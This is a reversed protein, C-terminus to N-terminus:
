RRLGRSLFLSETGVRGPLWPRVLSAQGAQLHSCPGGARGPGRGCATSFPWALAEPAWPAWSFAPGKRGAWRQWEVALQSERPDGVGCPAALVTRTLM